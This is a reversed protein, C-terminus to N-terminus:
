VATPRPAADIINGGEGEWSQVAEKTLKKNVRGHHRQVAGQVYCALLWSGVGVLVASGLTGFRLNNKM